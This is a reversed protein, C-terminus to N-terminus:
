GSDSGKRGERKIAESIKGYTSDLHEPLVKTEALIPMFNTDGAWRPVVHMHIHEFGAGAAGGLNFGINFGHPHMIGEIASTADRLLLLLEKWEEIEIGDVNTVHRYPAILLHGPNYPFTNLMGFVHDGRAFIRCRRDDGEKPKSCFICGSKDGGEIFELRWPAWVTKM